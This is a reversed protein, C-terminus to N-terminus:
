LRGELKLALNPSAFSMLANKNVVKEFQKSSKSFFYSSLDSDKLFITHGKGSFKRLIFESDLFCLERIMFNNTQYIIICSDSLEILSKRVKVGKPSSKDGWHVKVEVRKDDLEFDFGRQSTSKMQKLGFICKAYWEGLQTPMSKGNILIHEFKLIEFNKNISELANFIDTHDPKHLIFINKIIKANLKKAFQKEFWVKFNNNELFDLSYFTFGLLLLDRPGNINIGTTNLKKKLYNLPAFEESVEGMVFFQDQDYSSSGHSGQCFEKVFGNISDIDM